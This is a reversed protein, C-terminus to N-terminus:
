SPLEFCCLWHQELCCPSISWAPLYHHLSCQGVPSFFQYLFINVSSYIYQKHCLHIFVTKYNLFVGGLTGQLAIARAVNRNRTPETNITTPDSRKAPHMLTMTLLCFQQQLYEMLINSLLTHDRQLVRIARNGNEDDAYQDKKGSEIM